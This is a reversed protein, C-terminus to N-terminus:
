WASPRVCPGLLLVPFIHLLSSLAISSLQPRKQLKVHDAHHVEDLNPFLDTDVREVRLLVTIQVAGPV